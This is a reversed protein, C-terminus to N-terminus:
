NNQNNYTIFYLHIKKIDTLVTNIPIECTYLHHVTWLSHQMISISYMYFSIPFLSNLSISLVLVESPVYMQFITSGPWIGSHTKKRFFLPIPFPLCSKGPASNSPCPLQTKSKPSYRSMGLRKRIHCFSYLCQHM